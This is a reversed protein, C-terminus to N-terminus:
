VHDALGDEDSLERRLNDLGCVAKLVWFASVVLCTSVGPITAQLFGDAALSSVSSGDLAGAVFMAFGVVGISGFGYIVQRKLREFRDWQYRSWAAIGAGTFGVCVLVSVLIVGLVPIGYQGLISYRKNLAIGMQVLIIPCTAVFCRKVRGYTVGFALAKPTLGTALVHCLNHKDRILDNQGSFSLVSLVFYAVLSLYFFLIPTDIGSRFVSYQMKAEVCEVAVVAMAFAILWGLVHWFVLVAISKCRRRLSGGRVLPNDKRRVFEKLTWLFSRIFVIIKEKM